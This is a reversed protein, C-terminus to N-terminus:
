KKPKKAAPAVVVTSPSPVNVKETTKKKKLTKKPNKDGM